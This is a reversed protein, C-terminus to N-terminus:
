TKPGTIGPCRGRETRPDGALRSHRRAPAPRRAAPRARARGATTESSDPPPLTIGADDDFGELAAHPRRWRPPAANGLEDLVFRAAQQDLRARNAPRFAAIRAAAPRGRGTGAARRPLSAGPLSSGCRRKTRDPPAPSARATRPARHSSTTLRPQQVAKRGTTSPVARRERLGRQQRVRSLSEIRARRRGWSTQPPRPMM